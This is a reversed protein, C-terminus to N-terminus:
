PATQLYANFGRQTSASASKLRRTFEAERLDMGAKHMLSAAQAAVAEDFPALASVMAGSDMGVREALKQAYQRAATFKGDGDADVWIPNTAGIVRPNWVRSSPQYPRAIAWYPARVGPGSAIAVLHIDHKPRPVLWSVKAKIGDYAKGPREMAQHGEEIKHERIKVGNAFLEVCDARIWSPGLVTAEVRLSDGVETALDGVKFKDNVTMRALLGLSVLVRGKLFSECARAVDIRGPDGDECAVYSRGQGVIYRSVDHVDSSGVATVRHGYNLMAMWDHFGLMPDSQLASSNAVEIADFSFEFGRKNEGTVANFNTSAFPQFNSHINRPHNLVVVRVGPTARIAGILRPWDLIRLDPVASGSVIPFSNFHGRATTTECGTVPTFFNEVGMRKAPESLDALYEHDTAIPLEIGEGALTVAREDITADGHRSFTFTHVHTDSSVFGPTPVERRLQLRIKQTDGAKASIRETALSYEFGRTAHITYQGPRVGVRAKGDPTYIVGPRVALKQDGSPHIPVLEGTENVVTLRCPLAKGSVEETVAIELRAQDIAENRPRLDLEFEGVIIDDNAKPPTISLVNEGARLTGAPIPLAFVLPAEMLFLNGIKKGNLEVGWDLKVDDQYLFLTAERVNPQAPFRIELGRSTPAQGEFYDWEPEGATGLHYSRGDLIRAREAAQSVRGHACLLVAALLLFLEEPLRWKM